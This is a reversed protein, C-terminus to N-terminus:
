ITALRSIQYRINQCLVWSERCTASLHHDACKCQFHVLTESFQTAELHGSGLETVRFESAVCDDSVDSCVWQVVRHLFVDDYSDEVFYFQAVIAWDTYRNAVPQSTQPDFGPLPLNEAGMWIPGPPRDLRRHLPYRTKASPLAAPAHRQGGV